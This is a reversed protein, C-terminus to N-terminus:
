EALETAPLTPETVKDCGLSKGEAWVVIGDKVKVQCYWRHPQPYHPGEIVDSGNQPTPFIGSPNYTEHRKGAAVASKFDKKSKYNPNVYSM